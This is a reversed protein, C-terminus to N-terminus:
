AATDVEYLFVAKVRVAAHVELHHGVAGRQAFAAVHERFAESCYGHALIRQSGTVACIGFLRKGQELVYLVEDVGGSYEFRLIQGSKLRLAVRHGHNQDVGRGAYALNDLVRSEVLLNVARYLRYAGVEHVGFIFRQKFHYSRLALQYVRQVSAHDVRAVADFRCPEQEFLGFIAAPVLIDLIHGKGDQVPAPFPAPVLLKASDDIEAVALAERSLVVRLVHLEPPGLCLGHDGRQIGVLSCAVGAIQLKM